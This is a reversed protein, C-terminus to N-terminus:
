TTKKLSRIKRDRRARDARRQTACHMAPPALSLRPSWRPGRAVEEITDFAAKDGGPMMAPGNRAGEEGGSVGMGLYLLGKENLAKQCLVRRASSLIRSSWTSM